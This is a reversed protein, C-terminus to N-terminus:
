LGALAEPDIPEYRAPNGDADLVARLSQNTCVAPQAEYASGGCRFTIGDAGPYPAEPMTRIAEAVGAPSLDADSGGEVHGLATALAAMATYGGMTIANGVDEVDDGYAAMVAEYRQYAEDDAGLAMTATLSIGELREGAMAERTADTVCYSISTVAGEYGAVELGQFAAICFADNGLVHVVGAGSDVVERMQATMDPTGPPVAVVEYDLGATGLVREADGSEFATLAAPVDIVVFAVRDAGVDRAVAVPLGFLTALPNVMVFSTERDGLMGASNDQMFLTPVGAEHLPEWVAEAVGSLSVAVAVVGREVMQHACDAAGAPDVGTECTVLEIPRGAIGGRHANWFDVTAAAARLEDTNDFSPTQGDSVMGLRVPEGSAPDEPGLLAEDGAGPAPGSSPGEEGCAALLSLSGLVAVARAVARM